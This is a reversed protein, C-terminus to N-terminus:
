DIREYILRMYQNGIPHPAIASDSFVFSYLHGTATNAAANFMVKDGRFRIVGQFTVSSNSTPVSTTSLTNYFGSVLAREDLKVQYTHQQEFLWPSLTLATSPAVQWLLATTPSVSASNQMWRFVGFRIWDFNDQALVTASFNYAFQFVYELAVLRVTDATRGEQGSGQPLSTLITLLPTTTLGSAFVSTDNYSLRDKLKMEKSHLVENILQVTKVERATKKKKRNNGSRNNRASIGSNVTRTPV